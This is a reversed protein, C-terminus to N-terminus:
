KESLGELEEPKGARDIPLNESGLQPGSMSQAALFQCPLFALEEMWM